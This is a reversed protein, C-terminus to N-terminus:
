AATLRVPVSAFGRLWNSLRPRSPGAPEIRAVRRALAGLLAEAEMRAIVQGVCNHVGAGFATHGAAKRHLDYSDPADWRRPDRNAAGLMMLLKEDARVVTDGIAVERTATRGIVPSPTHLRLAEEFAARALDPDDRLVAWQGPRRALEHVASGLALITTDIGASLFSRVLLAADDAGIDGAAAHAYIAAGIGDDSLADRRMQWTVYERAGGARREADARLENHPGMSEFNLAAYPLLHERGEPAMGVADPLVTMPFREALAVAADVEGVAVADDVVRAAVEAFRAALEALARPALVRNMVRRAATHAPPDADLLVSPPRWGEGRRIDALGTGAASSWTSWDRFVAAVDAHRGAAWVGHAPLWVVRAAERIATDTPVPDALVDPAFPDVDLEM